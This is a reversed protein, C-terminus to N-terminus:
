FYKLMKPRQKTLKKKCKLFLTIKTCKSEWQSKIFKKSEFLSFSFYTKASYFHVGHTYSLKPSKEQKSSCCVRLFFFFSFFLGLLLNVKNAPTNGCNSYPDTLWQAPKNGANSTTSYVNQNRLVGPSKGMLYCLARACYFCM